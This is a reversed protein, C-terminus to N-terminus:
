APAPFPARAPPQVHLDVQRRAAGAHWGHAAAIYAERAPHRRISGMEGRSLSGPTLQVVALAHEIRHVAATGFTQRLRDRFETDAGRRVADFGGLRRLVEERRIMMSSLNAAIMRYGVNTVALRDTARVSRSVSAVVAD